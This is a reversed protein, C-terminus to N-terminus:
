KKNIVDTFECVRENPGGDLSRFKQDFKNSSDNKDIQTNTVTPGQASENQGGEYTKCSQDYKSNEDKKIAVHSFKISYSKCNLEITSM